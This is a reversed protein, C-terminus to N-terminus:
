PRLVLHDVAAAQVAEASFLMPHYEGNLWLAIMSDYHPHYPHGSQGTTHVTQSADLDSFDIIMRMSPVSRVIAPESWGWGLANVIARGGDAAFPGRNVMREILSIGSQGLVGDAFTVTHIAGWTWDNMDSGVNEELWTVADALSQLLMEDRTEVATTSVDDWWNATPQAALDHMFINNAIRDVNDEGVEDGIVNYTLQMYFIEFLTAPVSDRREQLDWGRLRELAAQVQPDNSSLGVLLPIYAQAPLSKSDVHIRAFDAATVDGAAIAADLMDTIRQGRDGDAWDRNIFYPYNADVVAHNATVIYGWEPNYLAPLEEYPIWGEWEYDGSWGPVPVTGDGNKRIPVLGPMQYGINGDVDAYVFNQAPVDWYRLAARFDDFNQAQNLLIVSQLVRSPEVATWQFALADHLDSVVENIIPGHHTIRVPLTVDDGGNVKIVEEIVTMDRWEGEFEYQAPNSPNIKEIFLDQVDPGVNTVGWAIRDNHGVVVGPVGAFSFGVVNFNPAHLGVEYWISPMQIGLHPDNALLPLGTATHEGSVVWNNSGIGMGSGLIFGNEPVHGIIDTNVRQWDVATVQELWHDAAANIENIQADTPAIVPREGYPYAPWLTEVDAAGITQLLLARNRESRWNGGLDWSMAVAWSITDVPRWAEIEWSNRVLGLITIQMALADQNQAIYANVGASYAELIAMYEPQEQEYYAITDAAMRNWGITRLFKDTELTQEGLMESLRGQSTHRWLEMQWFRDQAHVYGQAFFLDDLNDAYIHPVGMEDRYVNVASSLGPVTIDGATQPFPRRVIVLAAVAAALVALLLLSGISILGIRAIRKM